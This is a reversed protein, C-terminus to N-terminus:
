LMTFSIEKEFREKLKNLEDNVKFYKEYMMDKYSKKMKVSKNDGNMCFGYRYKGSYVKKLDKNIKDIIDLSESIYRHKTSLASIVSKYETDDEIIDIKLSRFISGDKDSSLNMYDFFRM